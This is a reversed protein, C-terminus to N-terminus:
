SRSALPCASPRPLTSQDLTRTGMECAIEVARAILEDGLVVVTFRTWLPKGTFSTPRETADGAADGARDCLRGALADRAPFAIVTPGDRVATDRSVHRAAVARPGRRQPDGRPRPSRAPPDAGDRYDLRENIIDVPYRLHGTIDSEYRSTPCACRPTPWRPPGSARARVPQRDHRRPGGGRRHGGRQAGRPHGGAECIYIGLADAAGHRAVDYADPWHRISEDALIPTSIHQRIFALDALRKRHIPQEVLQLDYAELREIEKVAQLPTRYGSNADVMVNVGAPVSERVARVMEEDLGTGPRGIKVKITRM